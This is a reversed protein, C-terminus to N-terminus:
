HGEDDTASRLLNQSCIRRPPPPNAVNFDSAPQDVNFASPKKSPLCVPNKKKKKLFNRTETGRRHTMSASKCDERRKKATGYVGVGGVGRGALRM